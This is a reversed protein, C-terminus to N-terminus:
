PATPGRESSCRKLWAAFKANWDSSTVFVLGDGTEEEVRDSYEFWGGAAQGLSALEALFGSQLLVNGLRSPPHALRAWVVFELDDYWQASM